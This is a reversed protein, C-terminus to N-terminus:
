SAEQIGIEDPDNRENWLCHTHLGALRAEVEKLTEREDDQYKLTHMVLERLQDLSIIPKCCRRCKM